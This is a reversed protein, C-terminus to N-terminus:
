ESPIHLGCVGLFGLFGRLTKLLLFGGGGADRQACIGSYPDEKVFSIFSFFSSFTILGDRGARSEGGDGLCDV